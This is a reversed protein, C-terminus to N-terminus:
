KSLGLKRVLAGTTTANILLTLMCMGSVHFLIIEQVYPDIKDDGAVVLALSLGIAGRLGAYSCLIVEEFTQGYGFKRTLPWFALMIGTRIIHLLPWDLFIHFVVSANNLIQQEAVREGIILGSLIFIVTEALYGIYGWVNHVSHECEVSISMKGQVSMYLGFAVIALIGSVHFSSAFESVYFILYAGFITANVELIYNNQIKHIIKNIM